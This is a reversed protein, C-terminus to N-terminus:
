RMIVTRGYVSLFPEIEILIRFATQEICLCQKIVVPVICPSIDISFIDSRFQDAFPASMHIVRSVEFPHSEKTVVHDIVVDVM